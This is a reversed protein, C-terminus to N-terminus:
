CRSRGPSRGPWCRSPRSRRRPTRRSRRRRGRWARRAGVRGRRGASTRVVRPEVRCGVGGAVGRARLGLAGAGARPACRGRRAARGAGGDGHVDAGAARGAGSGVRCGVSRQACLADSLGHARLRRRATRRAPSRPDRLRQLRPRGLVAGAGLAGVAAGCGREGRLRLRPDGGGGAVAADRAGDGPEGHHLRGASAAAPRRAPSGARRHGHARGGRPRRRSHTAARASGGGGPGSGRLRHGRDRPRRRAAPAPRAVQLGRRARAGSAPPLRHRPSRHDVGRRRRGARFPGGRPGPPRPGSSPRRFERGGVRRLPHRNAGRAGAVPELRGAGCRRRVVRDRRRRGIARAGAGAPPRHQALGAGGLRGRGRRGAAAGGVGSGVDRGGSRRGADATGLAAQARDVCGAFARGCHGVGGM